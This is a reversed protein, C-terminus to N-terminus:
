SYENQMTKIIISRLLLILVHLLLFNPGPETLMYQWNKRMERERGRQERKRKRTGERM